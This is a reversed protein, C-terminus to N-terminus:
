PIDPTQHCMESKNAKKIHKLSNWASNAQLIVNSLVTCEPM